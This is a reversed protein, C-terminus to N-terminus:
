GGCQTPPITSTALGSWTAAWIADFTGGAETSDALVDAVDARQLTVRASV